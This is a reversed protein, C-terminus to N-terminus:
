WEPFLARAARDRDLSGALRALRAALPGRLRHRRATPREPEHNPPVNPLRSQAHARAYDVHNLGHM